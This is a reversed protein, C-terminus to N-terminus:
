VDVEAQIAVAHPFDDEHAALFNKLDANWAEVSINRKEMMVAPIISFGKVADIQRFSFRNTLEVLMHDLM